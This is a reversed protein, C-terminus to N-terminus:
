VNVTIVTNKKEYVDPIDFQWVTNGDEQECIKTFGMIDYFDKVMANKATPYYYGM